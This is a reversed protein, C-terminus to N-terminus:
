LCDKIYNDYIKSYNNVYSELSFNELLRKRSHEGFEKRMQDDDLLLKIKCALDETNGVDALLGNYGDKVMECIGGHRYGVIPKGTAMSELVVTPLPDPNTSPLVFIDLLKYIGESDTRYGVNIIRNKYPSIAIKEKLEKERWEEGKFAAGVFIAYVNSYEKMIINVADLFDGQGKWSNVRGMMGIIKASKPINWENYLYECDSNPNFRKSDVGNYITKIQNYQFYGSEELHTKVANSDCITQTSYRAIIRSTLMYIIKPHEIIEHISWIQPIHLKRSIFCGELVAATNTHVININCNAAIKVLQNNSKNIELWFKLIGKPNFYKRRMIPYPLVTVNVKEQKLADALIGHDPLIVYACYKKKDLNRILDLLVKDAGYMEAGAHLFLINIM